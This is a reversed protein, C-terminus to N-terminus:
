AAADFGGAGSMVEALRYRLREIERRHEELEAENAGREELIARTYVLGKIRLLLEEVEDRDRWEDARGVTLVKAM